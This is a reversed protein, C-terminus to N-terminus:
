INERIVGRCYKTPRLNDWFKVLELVQPDNQDVAECEHEMYDRSVEVHGDIKTFCEIWTKTGINNIFFLALFRSEKERRVTVPIGIM